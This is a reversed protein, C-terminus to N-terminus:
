IGGGVEVEGVTALGGGFLVVLFKGKRLECCAMGVVCLVLVCSEDSMVVEIERANGRRLSINVPIGGIAKGCGRWEVPFSALPSYVGIWIWSLDEWDLGFRVWALGGLRACFGM